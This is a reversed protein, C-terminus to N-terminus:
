VIQVVMGRIQYGKVKLSILSLCKNESVEIYLNSFKCLSLTYVVMLLVNFTQSAINEMMDEQIAITKKSRAPFTAVPPLCHSDSYERRLM